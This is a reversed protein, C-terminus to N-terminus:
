YMTLSPNFLQTFAHVVADTFHFKKWDKDYCLVIFEGYGFM